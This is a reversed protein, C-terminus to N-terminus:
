WRRRCDRWFAKSPAVLPSHRQDVDAYQDWHWRMHERTLYHAEAFATYSPRDFDDDCVPIILLQFRLLPRANDRARLAVAAALNAGASTGAVGIRQADLGLEAANRAVWETAAYCDDLPIPFRHEPALRYDVAIVACGSYHVLEQNRADDRAISGLVWGGGHFSMCAAFRKSGHPEYIRIPIPGHPGPVSLDRM